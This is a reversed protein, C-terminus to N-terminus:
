RTELITKLVFQLLLFYTACKSYMPLMGLDMLLEVTPSTSLTLYFYQYNTSRSRRESIFRFSVQVLLLM